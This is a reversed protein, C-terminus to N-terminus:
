FVEVHSHNRQYFCLADKEINWVVDLLRQQPLPDYSPDLNRPNEVKDQPSLLKMVEPSNSAIKHLRLNVTHLMDRTITILQLTEGVTDCSIIGDDVYFDDLVFKNAADGFEEKGEDATRRLGFTAVAPSSTNGFIHVTMKYDVIENEQDNDKYWLFRMLDRHLPYVYFAHFLQEIDCMVGIEKRRFRILIGLLNNLLDPGSLLERNLSKGQFVPKSTYTADKLPPSAEVAQAHGRQFLNAMFKFHDEELQPKRQFSRTLSMLLQIEADPHIPPIDNAIDRLHNYQKALEPTPIERKDKPINNCEIVTPLDECNGNLSKVQLGSVLRSFKVEKSASCTSLLYKHLLMLHRDSNCKSCRVKAKCKSTLYATYSRLLHEVVYKNWNACISEPLNSFIPRLANPYNLYALGPLYDM